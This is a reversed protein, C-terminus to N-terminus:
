RAFLIKLWNQCIIYLYLAIYIEKIFKLGTIACKVIRMELYKEHASFLVINIAHFFM